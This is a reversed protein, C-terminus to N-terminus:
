CLANEESRIDSLSDKFSDLTGNRASSELFTKFHKEKIYIKYGGDPQDFNIYKRCYRWSNIYTSGLAHSLDTVTYRKKLPIGAEKLYKEFNFSM